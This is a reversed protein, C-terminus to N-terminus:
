LKGGGGLSSTAEDAPLIYGSLPAFSEALSIYKAGLASMFQDLLITGKLIVRTNHILKRDVLQYAAAALGINRIQSNLKAVDHPSEALEVALGHSTLQRGRYRQQLNGVLAEQPIFESEKWILALIKYADTDRLTRRYKNLTKPPFGSISQSFIRHELQNSFSAAMDMHIAHARLLLSTNAVKARRAEDSLFLPDDRPLTTTEFICPRGPHALIVGM